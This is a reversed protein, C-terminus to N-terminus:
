PVKIETSPLAWIEVLSDWPLPWGAKAQAGLPFLITRLLGGIESKENNYLNRETLLQCTGEQLWWRVIRQEGSGYM